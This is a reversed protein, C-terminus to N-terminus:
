KNKIPLNSKTSNASDIPLNPNETLGAVSTQARQLALISFKNYMNRIKPMNLQLARVDNELKELTDIQSNQPGNREFDNVKSSFDDYIRSINDLWGMAKGEQSTEEVEINKDRFELSLQRTKILMDSNRKIINNFDTNKGCQDAIASLEAITETQYLIM